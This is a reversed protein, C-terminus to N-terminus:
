NIINLFQIQRGSQLIQYLWRAATAGIIKKFNKSNNYPALLKYLLNKHGIM